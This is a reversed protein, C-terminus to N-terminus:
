GKRHISIDFAGGHDALASITDNMGLFLSGKFTQDASIVCTTGIAFIQGLKDCSSGGLKGILAGLPATPLLSQDSWAAPDGDPSCSKKTAVSYTWKQNDACTIRLVVPAEIYELAITWIRAVDMAVRVKRQEIWCTDM